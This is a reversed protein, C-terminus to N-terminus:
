SKLGSFFDVFLFNKAVEIAKNESIFVELDSYTAQNDWKKNKQEISIFSKTLCNSLNTIVRKQSILNILRFTDLCGIVFVRGRRFVEKCCFLCIANVPEIDINDFYENHDDEM